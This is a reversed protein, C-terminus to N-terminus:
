KTGLFKKSVDVCLDHLLKIDALRGFIFGTIADEFEQSIQFKMLKKLRELLKFTFRCFHIQSVLAELIAKKDLEDENTEKTQISEKKM